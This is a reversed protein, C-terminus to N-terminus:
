ILDHNICHLTAVAEFGAQAAEAPSAYSCGRKASLLTKPESQITFIQYTYGGNTRARVAVRVDRKDSATGMTVGGGDKCTHFGGTSMTAFKDANGRRAAPECSRYGNQCSTTVSHLEDSREL